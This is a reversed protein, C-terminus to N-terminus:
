RLDWVYVTTGDNAALKGSSSGTLHAFYSSLPDESFTRTRLPVARDSEIEYVVLEDDAGVVALRNGDPLFVFARDWPRGGFAIKKLEQHTRWDWIRVAGDGATGLAVRTGDPSWAFRPIEDADKVRIRTTEVGTAVDWIVLTHVIRENGLDLAKELVIAALHDGNPSFAPGHTLWPVSITRDDSSASLTRTELMRIVSTPYAHSLVALHAGDPSFVAQTGPIRRIETRGPIDWILIEPVYSPKSIEFSGFSVSLVHNNPHFSVKAVGGVANAGETDFQHNLIEQQSELDWIVLRGRAAQEEGEQYSVAALRKGDHSFALDRISKPGTVRIAAVPGKNFPWGFAGYLLMWVGCGVAWFAPRPLRQGPARTQVLHRVQAALVLYPALFLLVTLLYADTLEKWPPPETILLYSYFLLAALTSPLVVWREFLGLFRGMRRRFGRWFARPWSVATQGEARPPPHGTWFNYLRRLDDKFTALIVGLVVLNMLIFITTFRVASRASNSPTGQRLLEVWFGIDFGLTLLVALARFLFWFTTWFLHLVRRGPGRPVVSTPPAQVTPSSSPSPRPSSPQGTGAAGTGGPSPGASPAPRRGLAIGWTEIARRAASEDVGLEDVMRRVLSGSVVSSPLGTSSNRLEAVLRHEAAAVLVNVEWELEPCYDNLLSRLLLPDDCLGEGHKRVLESLAQWASDDVM